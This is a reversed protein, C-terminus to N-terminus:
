VGFSLTKTEQVSSQLLQLSSARGTDLEDDAIFQIDSVNSGDQSGQSSLDVAAVLAIHGISEMTAIDLLIERCRWCQHKQTGHLYLLESGPEGIAFRNRTVCTGLDYSFDFLPWVEVQRSV